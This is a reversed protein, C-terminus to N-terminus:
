ARAARVLEKLLLEAVNLEPLAGRQTSKTGYASHVTVTGGKVEFRGTYLTGDITINLEHMNKGQKAGSFNWM